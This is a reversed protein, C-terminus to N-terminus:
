FGGLTDRIQNEDIGIETWALDVAKKYLDDFDHQDMKEFSISRPLFCEGKKTVVRDVLGLRMQFILRYNNFDEIEDQNEHCIKILAFFKRHHKPSRVRKITMLHDEDQKIKEHSEPDLPVFADIVQGTNLDAVKLKRVWIEQM